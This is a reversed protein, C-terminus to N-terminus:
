REERQKELTWEAVIKDGRALLKPDLESRVDQYAEILWDRTIWSGNPFLTHLFEDDGEFFFSMRKFADATVSTYPLNSTIILAFLRKKFEGPTRPPEQMPTQQPGHSTM